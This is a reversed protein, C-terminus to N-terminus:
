RGTKIKVLSSDIESRKYRVRSGIRHGTIKGTRTWQLLTPCSVGLIDATQKRTLFEENSTQAPPNIYPRLQDLVADAIEQKLEEIPLQLQIFTKM